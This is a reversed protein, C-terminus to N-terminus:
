IGSGESHLDTDYPWGWVLRKLILARENWCNYEAGTRRFEAKQILYIRSKRVEALGWGDRLQEPKLLGKPTLFYRYQGMGESPNKRFPKRRDSYFDSLSIKCEVLYSTGGSDWGIADPFENTNGHPEIEAHVCRWRSYLWYCARICLEKHTM